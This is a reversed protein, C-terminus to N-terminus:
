QPELRNLYKVKILDRRLIDVFLGILHFPINYICDLFIVSSNFSPNDYGAPTSVFSAFERRYVHHLGTDFPSASCDCTTATWKFQWDEAAYLQLASDCDPLQM